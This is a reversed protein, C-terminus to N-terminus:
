PEVESTEILTRWERILELLTADDTATDARDLLKAETAHLIAAISSSLTDITEEPFPRLQFGVIRERADTVLHRNLARLSVHSADSSTQRYVTLYLDTMGATSSAVAWNIRLPRPPSYQASVEDILQKLGARQEPSVNPDNAPLNLIDNALAIRHKDHDDDLKEPFTKDRRTCGLAIATEACGRVLTRSEAAMGREVLLVAGQFMTVARAYLTVVYLEEPIKPVEQLLVTMAFRNIKSVFDFWARHQDRIQSIWPAESALFGSDEFPM